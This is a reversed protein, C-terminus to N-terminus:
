SDKLQQRTDNNFIVGLNNESYNINQLNNQLNNNITEYQKDFSLPLPINNGISINPSMNPSITSNYLDSNSSPVYNAEPARQLAYVQNRLISENNINSVFGSWPSNLSNPNLTNNSTTSNYNLINKNCIPKITELPMMYKTPRSRPNIFVESNGYGNNRGLIRYNLEEVLDSNQSTLNNNM